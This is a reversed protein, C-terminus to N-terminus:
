INNIINFTNYAPSIETSIRPAPFFLSEEGMGETECLSGKLM